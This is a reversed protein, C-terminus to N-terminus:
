KASRRFLVHEKAKPPELELLKQPELQSVSPSKLAASHERKDVSRRMKASSVTSTGTQQLLESKATRRAARTQREKNLREVRTFAHAATLDELTMLRRSKMVPDVTLDRHCAACVSVERAIETGADSNRDTIPRDRLVVHRLMLQRPPSVDYCVECRYM